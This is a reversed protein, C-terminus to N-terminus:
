ALLEEPQQNLLVLTQREGLASQVASFDSTAQSRLELLTQARSSEYKAFAAARDFDPAAIQLTFAEDFLEWVPEFASLRIPDTASISTRAKHFDAIGDDITRRAETLNSQRAFARGQYLHLEASRM